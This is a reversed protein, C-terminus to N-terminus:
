ANDWASKANEAAVAHEAEQLDIKAKGYEEAPRDLSRVAMIFATSNPLDSVSFNAMTRNRTYVEFGADRLLLVLPRLLQALGSDLSIYSGGSTYKRVTRTAADLDISAIVGHVGAVAADIAQGANVKLTAVEAPEMSNLEDPQEDLLKAILANLGDRVLSELNAEVAAAQANFVERAADVKVRAEDPTMTM